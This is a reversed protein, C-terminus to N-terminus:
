DGVVYLSDPVPAFEALSRLLERDKVLDRISLVGYLRGGELVVLHRIGHKRFLSAAEAIPADADITVVQRTAIEAAPKDLDVGEGVARVVDRESVVGVIQGERTLVVLGVRREAMLAAVQRITAEPPATIPPRSAFSRVKTM